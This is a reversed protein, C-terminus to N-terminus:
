QNANILVSQYLYNGIISGGRGRRGRGRRGREREGERREGGGGEGGGKEGGRGWNHLVVCVLRIHQTLLVVPVRHLVGVIYRLYLGCGSVLQGCGNVIGVPLFYKM